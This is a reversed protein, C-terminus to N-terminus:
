QEGTLFTIEDASFRSRWNYGQRELEKIMPAARDRVEEASLIPKYDEDLNQEHETILRDLGGILDGCRERIENVRDQIQKQLAGVDWKMQELEALNYTELSRKFTLEM